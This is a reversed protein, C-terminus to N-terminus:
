RPANRPASIEERSWDAVHKVLRHIGLAVTDLSADSMGAPTTAVKREGDLVVDEVGVPISAHGMGELLRGLEVDEGLTLRLRRSSARAVAAVVVAAIGCAGVPIRAAFAERLVRNVERAAVVASGRTAFDSLTKAAGGGGPLIWGEHDTGHARALDVVPGRALRAAERLVSREAGLTEGTAHDVEVFKLDPAYVVSRVGLQALSLLVLVSEHIDSGDLHGAGSLIVGLTPENM